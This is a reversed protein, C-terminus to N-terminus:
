EEITVQDPRFVEPRVGEPVDVYIVAPKTGIENYVTQRSVGVREALRAMTVASWGSETTLVSAEAVIRARLPAVVPSGVAPPTSM